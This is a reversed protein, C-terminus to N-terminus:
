APAAASRRSSIPQCGCCRRWLGPASPSIPARASRFLLGAVPVAFIAAVLGVIPVCLLPPVGAKTALAFLGYGGLGVFAQQGVSVLGAYGALFNWLSALALYLFIDILLRM